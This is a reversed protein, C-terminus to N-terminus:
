ILWGSDNAFNFVYLAPTDNNDLMTFENDITRNILEQFTDDMNTRSQVRIMHIPDVHSAVFRAVNLPVTYFVDLKKSKSQIREPKCTVILLICIFITLFRILWRKTFNTSIM